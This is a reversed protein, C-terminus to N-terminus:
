FPSLKLLLILLDGPEVLAAAPTQTVLGQFTGYGWVVTARISIKEPRKVKNLLRKAGIFRQERTQASM